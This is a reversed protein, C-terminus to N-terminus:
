LLTKNLLNAGTLLTHFSKKAALEQLANLHNTHHMDTGAFQIMDQKILKEAVIKVGKGYYGLLSLLNVQLVAGLDILRQYKAFDNHYYLYREPHAIIPKLGKMNLEFIVQEMNPSPAIYSMEILIYKDCLTLLQDGRKISNEFDIDVMYEAAADIQVPINQERLARKVEELRPLITAPSNPHLDAIIHPTCIFKQYGLGHLEKIFAITEDMTKLGDDLGPLLHSHMDAGIFSLDPAVKSSRFLSLM